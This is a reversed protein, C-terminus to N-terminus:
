WSTRMRHIVERSRLHTWERSRRLYLTSDSAIYVGEDALRPVIQKPSLDRWRESCLLAVAREREAPSLANAPTPRSARPRGDHVGDRAWRQVTRASVGLVACARGQRAGAAVAEAVLELVRMREESATM